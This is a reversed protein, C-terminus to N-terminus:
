EAAKRRRRPKVVEVAEDEVEVPKAARPKAATVKGLALYLRQDRANMEVPEGAQLRRTGYKLGCTAYMTKNAM